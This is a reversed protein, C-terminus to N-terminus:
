KRVIFMFTYPLTTSRRTKRGENKRNRPATHQYKATCNELYSIKGNLVFIILM